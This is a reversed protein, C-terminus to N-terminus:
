LPQLLLELSVDAQSHLLRLRGVREQHEAAALQRERDERLGHAAFAVLEREPARLDDEAPVGRSSHLLGILLEDDVAAIVERPGDDGGDSLALSLELVQAPM